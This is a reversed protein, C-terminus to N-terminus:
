VSEGGKGDIYEAPFRLMVSTGVNEKSTISIGYEEGYTIKLRLHVNKLGISNGTNTTRDNLNQRIRELQQPAIGKGDDSISITLIDESVQAVVSIFYKENGQQIAHKVTNEVIPQLIFKLVRCRKAQESIDYYVEFKNSYRIRQIDLYSKIHQIEEKICVYENSCDINYRLIEGMKSSIFAIENLGAQKAFSNITELTNFMFHPNIQMQLARLEARKREAEIIYNENITREIEKAMKRIRRDIDAFEDRGSLSTEINFDGGEIRQINGLIVSVRRSISNSFKIILFTLITLLLLAMTLFAFFILFAMRKQSTKDFIYRVTFNEDILGNEIYYLNKVNAQSSINGYKYCVENDKLIEVGVSDNTKISNSIISSLIIEMKAYAVPRTSKTVEDTFYITQVISLLENGVRNEIFVYKAKNEMELLWAEHEINSINSLYRGLVKIQDNIPYISFNYVEEMANGYTINELESDIIVSANYATIMKAPDIDNIAEAINKNYVTRDLMAQYLELKYNMNSYSEKQFFDYGDDIKSNYFNVYLFSFITNLLFVPVFIISVM